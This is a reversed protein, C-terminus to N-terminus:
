ISRSTAVVDVVDVALTAAGSESSVDGTLGAGATISAVYNGTTDTGLAVADAAITLVGANTITADSSMTAFAPASGTIGLFLQGNTGVATASIASSGNGLLVGNSTLTTAGTGGNGVALTGTVDSSALDVASSTVTGSGDAKLIGTSLSGFQITGTSSIGTAGSIAGAGSIDISPTELFYTYGGGGTNTFKIGDAVALDTDANDIKIAADLGNTNASNAQQVFYGATTGASGSPTAILSFANVTGALDTTLALNETGAFTLDVDTTFTTL